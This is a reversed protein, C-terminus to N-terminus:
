EAVCEWGGRFVPDSAGMAVDDSPVEVREHDSVEIVSRRELDHLRLSRAILRVNKLQTSFREKAPPRYRERATARTRRKNCHMEDASGSISPDVIVV